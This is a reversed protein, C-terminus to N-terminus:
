NNGALSLKTLSMEALASFIALRQKVTYRAIQAQSAQCVPAAMHLSITVPTARAATSAPDPRAPTRELSAFAARNDYFLFYCMSCYAFETM